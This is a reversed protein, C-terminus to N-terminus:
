RGPTQTWLKRVKAPVDSWTFDVYAYPQRGSVIPPLDFEFRIRLFYTPGVHNLPVSFLLCQRPALTVPSGIDRLYGKGATIKSESSKIPENPLEILIESPTIAVVEDEIGIGPDATGPEFTMVRIPVHSNNKLRLWLGVPPEFESLPTRRGAHDFIIQVFPHSPEIVFGTDPRQGSSPTLGLVTVLVVVSGFIRSSRM